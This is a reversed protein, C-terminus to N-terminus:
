FRWTMRVFVNREVELFKTDILSSKYEQHQPDFLNQAGVSLELNKRPKWTVQTDMATYGRTAVTPTAAVYRIGFNWEITNTLNMFSQVFFQHHPSRREFAEFIIDASDADKHLQMDFYSYAMKMRWNKEVRWDLSLEVGYTEGYMKNEGVLPLYFYGPAPDPIFELVGPEGTLLNDYINYFLTTDVSLSDSVAIRHGIEFAVLDESQFKDSGTPVLLIPYPLPNESSLPPSTHFYIKGDQEYRSPTRVARSVALWFTQQPTPTWALRANPQFEFGSYDNHELKSGLMLFLQDDILTLEDQLFASFLQDNRRPPDIIAAATSRLEDGSYRYGMGWVIDHDSGVWFHHQFDLDFTLREEGYEFSDRNFWDVYMQLAFDSSDPFTHQWRSLLNFGSVDDITNIRQDYPETVTPIISTSGLDGDYLDGQMTLHDQGSLDWDMRGGGRVMKWEDAGEVGMGDVFDDRYFAKGYVRYYLDQNYQGGYRIEGFGPEETATGLTLLGGQTQEASKTIINIVGNVANAGWLSAGPGRIIEIRAVDELVLDQVEWYVGSFLPTYVTRGDIMVLLKYAFRDNFGRTSIAWKNSDIRAVHLGPVYRLAEPISTVGMRRIDEATVVYVASAANSLKEPKKSVTTVEVNLLEELSLHLLDTAPELDQDAPISQNVVMLTLSCIFFLRCEFLPIKM